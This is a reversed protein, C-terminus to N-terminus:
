HTFKKIIERGLFEDEAVSGFRIIHLGTAYNYAIVMGKKFNHTWDDADIIVAEQGPLVSPLPYTAEDFLSAQRLFAPHLPVNAITFQQKVAPAEIMPKGAQLRSTPRGIIFVTHINRTDKPLKTDDAWAISANAIGPQSALLHVAAQKTTGALLHKIQQQSSPTLAYVWTAQAAFTVFVLPTPTHTIHAQTVEVRAEGFLSYAAKLTTAAKLSLLATAQAALENPNYAVASCTESVTVKVQVAEQGPQHDATQAPACSLMSLHEQPTLQGNLAGQMSHALTTKLPTAIAAIDSPAVTHFDRQDQGGTFSATNKALVASACCAQQIDYAPINGKVGPHIAHAPV